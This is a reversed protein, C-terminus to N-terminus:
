ALHRTTMQNSVKKQVNLITQLLLRLKEEPLYKESPKIQRLHNIAEEVERPNRKNLRNFKLIFNNSCVYKLLPDILVDPFKKLMEAIERLTTERAAILNEIDNQHLKIYDYLTQGSELNIHQGTTLLYNFHCLRIKKKDRLWAIIGGAGKKVLIRKLFPISAPIHDDLEILQLRKLAWNLPALTDYIELHKLFSDSCYETTKNVMHRILDRVDDPVKRSIILMSYSEKVLFENGRDIISWIKKDEKQIEADESLQYSNERFGSRLNESIIGPRLENTFKLPLMFLYGTYVNKLIEWLKTLLDLGMTIPTRNFAVIITDINLKMVCKRALFPEFKAISKLFSVKSNIGSKKGPLNENPVRNCKEMLIEIVEDDILKAKTEPDLRSLIRITRDLNKGLHRGLFFKKIISQFETKKCLHTLLEFHLSALPRIIKYLNQYHLGAYDTILDGEPFKDDDKVGTIMQVLKVDSRHLNPLITEETSDIWDRDWKICIRDILKKNKLLTLAEEKIGLSLTAYSSLLPIEAAFFPLMKKITEDFVGNKARNFYMYLDNHFEGVFEHLTTFSSLGEGRQAKVKICNFIVNWIRMNRYRLNSDVRKVWGLFETEDFLSPLKTLKYQLNKYFLRTLKELDIHKSQFGVSKDAKLANVENEDDRTPTTFIFIVKPKINTKIARLEEAIAYAKDIDCLCDDLILVDRNTAQKIWPTIDQPLYILPSYKVVFGEQEMRLGALLTNFTKGVGENGHISILHAKKFNKFLLNRFDQNLVQLYNNPNFPEAPSFLFNSPIHDTKLILPVSMLEPYSIFRHVRHVYALLYQQSSKFENLAIKCLRVEDSDLSHANGRILLTAAILQLTDASLYLGSDRHPELGFLWVMTRAELENLRTKRYFDKLREPYHTPRNFHLYWRWVTSYPISLFKAILKCDEETVISHLVKKIDQATWPM